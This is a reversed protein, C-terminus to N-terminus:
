LAFTEEEFVHLGILRKFLKRLKYRVGEVEYGLEVTAARLSVLFPDEAEEAKTVHNWMFGYDSKLSVRINRSQYKRVFRHPLYKAMINMTTVCGPLNFLLNVIPGPLKLM